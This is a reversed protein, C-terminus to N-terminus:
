RGAQTAAFARAQWVQCCWHGSERRLTIAGRTGAHYLSAVPVGFEIALEAIPLWCDQALDAVATM